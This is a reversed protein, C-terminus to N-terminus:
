LAVKQSRLARRALDQLVHCAAPANKHQDRQL